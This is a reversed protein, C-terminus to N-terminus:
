FRSRRFTSLFAQHHFGAPYGTKYPDHIDVQNLSRANIHIQVNCALLQWIAGSQMFQGFSQIRHSKHTDMSGGNDIDVADQLKFRDRM